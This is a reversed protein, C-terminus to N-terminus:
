LLICTKSKENENQEIKTLFDKMIKQRKSLKEVNSDKHQEIKISNEISKTEIPVLRQKFIDKLEIDDELNNIIDIIDICQRKESQTCVSISGFNQHLTSKSKDMQGILPIGLEILCKISAISRHELALFLLPVYRQGQIYDNLSSNPNFDKLHFGMQIIKDNILKIDEISNNEIAKKLSSYFALKLYNSIISSKKELENKPFDQAHFEKCCLDRNFLYDNPYFNICDIIQKGNSQELIEISKKDDMICAYHYCTRNLNDKILRETEQINSSEIAAWIGEGYGKYLTTLQPNNKIYTNATKGEHNVIGPDVGVRFLAQILNFGHNVSGRILVEHLPTNGKANTLNPNAGANSLAYIMRFAINEQGNSNRCIIHFYSGEKPHSFTALNPEQHLLSNLRQLLENSYIIRNSLLKYLRNNYFPDDKLSM